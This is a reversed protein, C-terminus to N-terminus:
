ARVNDVPEVEVKAFTEVSTKMLGEVDMHRDIRSAEKQQAPYNIQLREAIGRTMETMKEASDPLLGLKELERLEKQVKLSGDIPGGKREIDSNQDEGKIGFTVGDYRTLDALLKEDPVFKGDTVQKKYEDLVQNAQDGNAIHGYLPKKFDPNSKQLQRALGDLLDAKARQEATIFGLNVMIAGMFTDPKPDYPKDTM